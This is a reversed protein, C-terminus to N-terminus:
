AEDTEEDLTFPTKSIIIKVSYGDLNRCCNYTHDSESANFRRMDAIDELIADVNFFSKEDKPEMKKDKQQELNVCGLKGCWPTRIGPTCKCM